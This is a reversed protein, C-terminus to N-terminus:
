GIELKIKALIDIDSPGSDQTDVVVVSYLPM